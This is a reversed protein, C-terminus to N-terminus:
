WAHIIKWICHKHYSIAIIKFEGNVASLRFIYSITQKNHGIIRVIGTVAAFPIDWWALGDKVHKSVLLVM